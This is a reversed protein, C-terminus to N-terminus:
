MSWSLLPLEVPMSVNGSSTGDFAANRVRCRSKAPPRVSGASIMTVPSTSVGSTCAAIVSRCCRTDCIGANAGCVCTTGEASPVAIRTDANKWPVVWLSAEKSAIVSRRSSTTGAANWPTSPTSTETPPFVANKRSKRSRVSVYWHITRANTSPRENMRSITTNRDITTGILAIM